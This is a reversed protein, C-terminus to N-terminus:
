LVMLAVVLPELYLTEYLSKAELNFRHRRNQEEIGLQQALDSLGVGEGKQLAVRLIEFNSDAYDFIIQYAETYSLGNIKKDIQKVGYLTVFPNILREAILQSNKFIAGYHTIFNKAVEGSTDTKEGATDLAGDLSKGGGNLVDQRIALYHQAVYAEVKRRKANYIANEVSSGIIAGPLQFISPLHSSDNSSCGILLLPLLFALAFLQFPKKGM